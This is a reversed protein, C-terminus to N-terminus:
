VFYTAYEFVADGFEAKGVFDDVVFYVVEPGGSDFEV